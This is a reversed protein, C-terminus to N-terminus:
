LIRILFKNLSSNSKYLYHVVVAAVLATVAGGLVDTMFHTGIFIRALGVFIAVAMYLGAFRDRRFLLVFAIAFAVTAHDSPFSPDASKEVILHTLGLDYPRTRAVFLLVVQNMLLGLAVALGCSIARYRLEEHKARIFWTAAVSAVLIFIVIKAFFLAAYDLAPFQGAFSNIAATIDHDLQM